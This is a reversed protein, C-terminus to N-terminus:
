SNVDREVEKIQCDEHLPTHYCLESQPHPPCPCCGDISGCMCCEKLLSSFLIMILIIILLGTIVGVILGFTFGLKNKLKYNM